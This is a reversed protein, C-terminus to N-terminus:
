SLSVNLPLNDALSRLVANAGSSANEVIVTESDPVGLMAALLKRARDLLPQYGGRFWFNCNEEM